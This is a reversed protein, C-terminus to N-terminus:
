HSISEAQVIAYVIAGVILLGMAVGGILFWKNVKNSKKAFPNGVPKGGKDLENLKVGGPAPANHDAKKPPPPSPTPPVNPDELRLEVQGLRLVQNLKLVAEKTPEGGIFTGNTSGLDKVRVESGSLLIECHHSSISPEPVSFDNDELRGVTTREAKLEYSKGSFGATLVVLRAM